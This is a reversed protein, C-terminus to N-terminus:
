GAGAGAQVAVDATGERAPADGANEVQRARNTRTRPRPKAPKSKSELKARAVIDRYSWSYDLVSLSSSSIRESDVGRFLINNLESELSRGPEDYLTIGSPPPSALSIHLFALSLHDYGCLVLRDHEPTDLLSQPKLQHRVPEVGEVSKLTETLHDVMKSLDPSNELCEPSYALLIRYM